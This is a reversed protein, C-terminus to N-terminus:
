RLSVADYTLLEILAVAIMLSLVLYEVHVELDPLVVRQIRISMLNVYQKLPFDFKEFKLIWEGNKVGQELAPYLLHKIEEYNTKDYSKGVEQAQVSDFPWLIIGMLVLAFLCGMTKLYKDKM